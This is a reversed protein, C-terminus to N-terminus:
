QPSLNSDRRPLEVRQGIQCGAVDVRDLERRLDRGLGELADGVDEAHREIPEQAAVTAGPRAFLNAGRDGARARAGLANGFLRPALAM